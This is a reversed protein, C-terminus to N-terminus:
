PAKLETIAEKVLPLLGLEEDLIDAPMGPLVRQNPARSILRNMARELAPMADLFGIQGIYQVALKRLSVPVDRDLMIEALHTGAFSCEKLLRSAPHQLTPDAIVVQLLAIVQQTRMQGLQYRLTAQVQSNGQCLMDDMLRAIRGRLAVDPETLRTALIYAIVPQGRAIEVAELQEVGGQRDFLELSILLEAIRWIQQQQEIDLSVYGGDSGKMQQLLITLPDM